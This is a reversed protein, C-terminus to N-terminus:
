RRVFALLSDLFQRFREPLGHQFRELRAVVALMLEDPSNLGATEVLLVRVNGFMM